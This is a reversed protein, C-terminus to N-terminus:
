KDHLVKFLKQVLEQKARVQAMWIDPNAINGKVKLVHKIMKIANIISEADDSRMDKDLVVTLAYYRNTM